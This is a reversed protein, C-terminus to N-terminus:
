YNHASMWFSALGDKLILHEGTGETSKDIWDKNFCEKQIM